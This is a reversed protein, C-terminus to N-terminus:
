PPGRSDTLIGQDIAFLSVLFRHLLAGDLEKVGFLTKAEDRTVRTLIHENVEGRDLGIPVLGEFIALADLEVSSGAALALFRLVDADDSVRYDKVFGCLIQHQLGRYMPTNLLFIIAKEM